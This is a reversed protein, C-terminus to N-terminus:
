QRPGVTEGDPNELFWQQHLVIINMMIQTTNCVNLHFFFLSLFLPPDVSLDCVQLGGSVDDHM